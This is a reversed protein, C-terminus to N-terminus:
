TRHRRQSDSTEQSRRSRWSIYNEILHDLRGPILNGAKGQDRCGPGASAGGQRVIEGPAEVDGKRSVVRQLEVEGLLRHHLLVADRGLDRLELLQLVDKSTDPLSCKLSLVCRAINFFTRYKKHHQRSIIIFWIPRTKTLGSLGRFTM